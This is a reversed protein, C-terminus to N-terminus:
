FDILFKVKDSNKIMKFFSMVLRKDMDTEEIKVEACQNM